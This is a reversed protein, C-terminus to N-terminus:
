DRDPRTLLKRLVKYGRHATVKVTSETLGTKQSVEAVSYGELKLLQIVSRQPQTLLTLAHRLTGALGALDFPPQPSPFAESSTEAVVENQSLRKRKRLFDLLRHRAIAYLWPGLPREPDYSHRHHHLSLLTEQVIDEVQGSNALRKRVFARVLTAAEHLFAEYAKRDGNQADRLLASLRRDLDTEM